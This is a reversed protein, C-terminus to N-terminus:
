RDRAAHVLGQRQSKDQFAEVLREMTSWNMTPTNELHRRKGVMDGKWAKTTWCPGKLNFLIVM